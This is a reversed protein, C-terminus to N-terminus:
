KQKMLRKVRGSDARSLCDLPNPAVYANVRTGRISAKPLGTVSDKKLLFVGSQSTKFRPVNRYAVDESGPFRVVIEGGGRAGKLASEVRITAEKWDPDHETIIRKGGKATAARRVSIVKGVVIMDANKIRGRLDTDSLSQRRQAVQLATRATDISAGPPSVEHGIERVAVGQGLIWGQTYFTAQSGERFVSPDKL